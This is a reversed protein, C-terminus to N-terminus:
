KGHGGIYGKARYVILGQATQKQKNQTTSAHQKFTLRDDILVVICKLETRWVDWLTTNRQNGELIERQLTMVRLEHSGKMQYM